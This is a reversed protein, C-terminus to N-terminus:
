KCTTISPDESTCRIDRQYGTSTNRQEMDAFVVKMEAGSVKLIVDAKQAKFADTLKQALASTFPKWGSDAHWEWTVDSKNRKSEEEGSASSSSAARTDKLINLYKQLDPVLIKARPCSPFDFHVAVHANYILMYNHVHTFMLVSHVHRISNVRAFVSVENVLILCAERSRCIVDSTGRLPSLKGCFRDTNKHTYKLSAHNIPFYIESVSM